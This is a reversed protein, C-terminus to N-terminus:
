IISITLYCKSFSSFHKQNMRFKPISSVQNDVIIDVTAQDIGLSITNNVNVTDASARTVLLDEGNNIILQRRFPILLNIYM